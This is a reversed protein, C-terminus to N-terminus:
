RASEQAELEPRTDRLVSWGSMTLTEAHVHYHHGCLGIKGGGAPAALEVRGEVGCQDCAEPDAAEKEPM